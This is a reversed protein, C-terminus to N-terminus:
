YLQDPRWTLGDWRSVEHLRVLMGQENSYALIRDAVALAELVAVIVM